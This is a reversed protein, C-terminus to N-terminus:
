RRGRENPDGAKKDPTGTTGTFSGTSTPAFRVSLLATNGAHLTLPLSLSSTSFGAGSLTAQNVTIDSGGTNSLTVNNTQSSGVKISGFAVSSPSLSLQGPSASTGSATVSALVNSNTGMLSLTRSLNEATSPHFQVTFPVSAGVGLVLPTTIGLVQLDSSSGTIANVTVPSATNNSLTDQLAKSSGVAVTGFNLAAAGVVVSGSSSPGGSSLIQCGALFLLGVLTLFLALWVSRLRYANV